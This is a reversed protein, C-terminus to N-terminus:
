APQGLLADWTPEDSMFVVDPNVSFCGSEDELVIEAAVLYRADKSMKKPLVVPGQGDALARMLVGMFLLRADKPAKSLHGFVDKRINYVAEKEIKM